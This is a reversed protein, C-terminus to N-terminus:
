EGNGGLCLCCDIIEVHGKRNIDLDEYSHYNDPVYSVVLIELDDDQTKLWEIFDKIKM